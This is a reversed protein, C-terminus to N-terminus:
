AAISEPRLGAFFSRGRRRPQYVAISTQLACPRVSSVGAQDLLNGCALGRLRLVSLLSMKVARGGNVNLFGM